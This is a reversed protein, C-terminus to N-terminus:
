KKNKKLYERVKEALTKGYNYEIFLLNIQKENLNKNIRKIARKSLNITTKSISCVRSFKEIPSEEKLLEILKREAEINTDRSQTKM